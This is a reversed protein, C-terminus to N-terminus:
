PILDLIIKTNKKKQENAPFAGPTKRERPPNRRRSDGKYNRRINTLIISDRICMEGPIGVSPLLSEVYSLIMAVATLMALLVLRKTKKM